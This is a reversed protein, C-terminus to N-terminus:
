DEINGGRKKLSPGLSLLHMLLPFTLHSFPQTHSSIYIKKINTSIKQPTKPKPSQSPHNKTYHLPPPSLLSKHKTQLLKATQGRPPNRKTNPPTPFEDAQFASSHISPHISPPTSTLNPYRPLPLHPITPLSPSIQPLYIINSKLHHHPPPIILSYTHTVKPLIPSKSPLYPLHASESSPGNIDYIADSSFGSLM